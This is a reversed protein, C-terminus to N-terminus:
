KDDGELGAVEPNPISSPSASLAAVANALSDYDRYEAPLADRIDRLEQEAAEIADTAMKGFVAENMMRGLEPSAQLAAMAAGIDVEIRQPEAKGEAEHPLRRNWAAIAGAESEVYFPGLRTGCRCYISFPGYGAVAPTGGCFPCPLLEVKVTDAENTM